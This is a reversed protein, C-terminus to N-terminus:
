ENRIVVLVIAILILGAGFIGLVTLLEGGFLYGFLAAFVPELAFIIATKSSSQYKQAWNQFLFTLTTAGLGMYFIIVWFNFDTSNFNFKEGFIFSSVLSLFTLIILQIISYLFINIEETRVYKDNIIIFFAYFLGCFLVLIDGIIVGSEGELLLFGMGIVSIFAAIWIRVKIKKKFIIWVIFPVMVTGLGTIFGAKGATTTQLGYTQFVMSLFYIIGSIIGSFIIKKNLRRFYAILFPLFGILSISYRLFLYLFIPLGQTLTKTIIFTTGWLLTTLILAITSLSRLKFATQTRSEQEM